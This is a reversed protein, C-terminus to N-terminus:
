SGSSRRRRARTATGASTCGAQCCMWAPSTSHAAVAMARLGEQTLRPTAHVHHAEGQAGGRIDDGEHNGYRHVHLGAAPGPVHVPFFGVRPRLRDGAMLPEPHFGAAAEQPCSRGSPASRLLAPMQPLSERRPAPWWILVSATGTKPQTVSVAAQASGSVAGASGTVACLGSYPPPPGGGDYEATLGRHLGPTVKPETADPWSSSTWM